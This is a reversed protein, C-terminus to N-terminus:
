QYKKPVITKPMGPNLCRSCFVSVGQAGKNPDKVFVHGSPGEVWALVLFFFQRMTVLFKRFAM